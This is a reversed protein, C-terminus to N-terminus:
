LRSGTPDSSKRVTPFHLIGCRWTPDAAGPIWRSVAPYEFYGWLALVQLGVVGALLFRQTKRCGLSTGSAAAWGEEGWCHSLFGSSGEGRTNNKVPIIETIGNVAGCSYWPRPAPCSYTAPILASSIPFKELRAKKGFRFAGGFFLCRCCRFVGFGPDFGGLLNLNEINRDCSVFNSMEPQTGAPGWLWLIGWWGWGQARGPECLCEGPFFEGQERGTSWM